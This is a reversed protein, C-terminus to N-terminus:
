PHPGKTDSAAVPQGVRSVAINQLCRQVLRSFIPAALKGGTLDEKNAEPDDVVIIACLSPNEAPAFGAFSVCYHGTHIAGGSATYLQSTGTKGAVTVGPIAAQVGTGRPNAVVGIMAKKMYGATKESCVRHVPEPSYTKVIEGSGDRVEKVIQPKMLTGGNAIAAVAMCMQLPTVQIAHGYSMRSFTLGDVM